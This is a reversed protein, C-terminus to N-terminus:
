KDRLVANTKSTVDNIIKNFVETVEDDTLTRESSNFTLSYAISKKGLGVNPGVYVDFVKLDTLLRAGSKKIITEIENSEVSEDVIFAMDKNISPYKSIEKFKLQKNTKRLENLSLEAVYVDDKQTSPHVRGVIGIEKRDLRITACIGPHMNPKESKVFDYRNKFGLYDLLNEIIGKILYFNTKVIANNWSSALYNGKMLIAIKSEENFENDYTKAIEYIFIDEIKRMKNYEYVNILSPILTTRIVSKDMSMPNPLEKQIKEDYNFTNAMDRSTLTYTKCENLGLARLRKSIIKRTYVDGVYKGQKTTSVPLTSVLNHYGYLRGIEEAIDNVYPDIDLRRKPITVIFKNDKITYPFDLRQLEYEMDESSITIGLMKNIQEPYFEVKKESKDVKDYTVMGKLIKANAYKELLHCARNIAKLTYEYNLGKGYRVSAESKLNLKSATNRISVADFIASEILINKTNETVETNEGGMVGAICVAKEGDTIVIDNSNLVRVKSDLTTIEENDLADRVLVKNGLKDKDFFHLPQGYELMVYNSIDVVNNIPRMGASILRKKIFEPSEGVSINTVMKALYYPCKTTEIELKFHNNIDDDIEKYDDNPLTVKKNLICAIEYAFGIHYYCDNNRHKHVDLEYLTDALGMYAIPDKGVPAQADLEHLGKNYNEETKEELGIECLACLMGNSEVGRIKSKKIEFEPLKAGPLAVIVKLGTRVNPAGCVIQTTSDGINVQCIHLHDSDPHKVCEVVEGIVLNDITNSIVKEINIGAKTIKVALEKLDEDAIDIYDKVWELSIM